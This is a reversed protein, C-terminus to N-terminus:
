SARDGKKANKVDEEFRKSIQPDRVSDTDKRDSSMDRLIGQAALPILPGANLTHEINSTRYKCLVPPIVACGKEGGIVRFM